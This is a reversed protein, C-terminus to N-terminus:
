GVFEMLTTFTVLKNPYRNYMEAIFLQEHSDLFTQHRAKDEAIFQISYSLGENPSNVIKLLRYSVFCEKDMLQPIHSEKMWQLWDTASAEEIIVTVNFLLM